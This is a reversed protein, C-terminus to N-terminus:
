ACRRDRGARRARAALAGLAGAGFLLFSAPEPTPVPEGPDVGGGQFQDSYTWRLIDHNGWAAGTGATFGVYATNTGILTAIDVNYSLTAAAPRVTGLATRIELTTGNYDIWATWLDENDFRTAIDTTVASAVNGNIDVGLHNSSPDWGNWFTDFEVGLSPTVGQYGLGGGAGGISSSVPQVVFVLGDAGTQVGDSIGGPDTIRFQFATSFNSANITASSFASGSQSGTAPVLRLVQGDSTTAVAADGNLALGATSSFDNFTITAAGAPASVVISVLACLIVRM